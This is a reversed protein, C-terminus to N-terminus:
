TTVIMICLIAIIFNVVKCSEPLATISQLGCEVLIFSCVKHHPVDPLLLSNHPGAPGSVSAETVSMNIINYSIIIYTRMITCSMTM